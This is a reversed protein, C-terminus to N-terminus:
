PDANNKSSPGSGCKFHFYSDSDANFDFHLLKLPEFYLGPPEFRLRSSRNVLLRLIGDSLHSTDPDLDANVRFAPDRIRLLTFVPDLDANFHHPDAVM